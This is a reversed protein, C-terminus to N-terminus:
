EARLTALPRRRLVDLSSLVGVLGVSLTTLLLGAVSVSGAPRWAIDLLIRCVAWSLGLAGLCGV